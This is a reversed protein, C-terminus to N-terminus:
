LLLIPTPANADANWPGLAASAYGFFREDHQARGLAIFKAATEAAATPDSRNGFTALNARAQRQASDVTVLVEDRSTPKYPVASASFAIGSLLVAVSARLRTSMWQSPSM